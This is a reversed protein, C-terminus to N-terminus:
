ILFLVLYNSNTKLLHKEVKSNLTTLYNNINKNSLWNDVFKKDM